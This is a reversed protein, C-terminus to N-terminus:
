NKYNNKINMIDKDYDTYEKIEQLSKKFLDDDDNSELKNIYHLLYKIEEQMEIFRDYMKLCNLKYNETNENINM